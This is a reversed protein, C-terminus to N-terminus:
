FGRVTNKIKSEWNPNHREGRKSSHLLEYDGFGNPDYFIFEAGGEM